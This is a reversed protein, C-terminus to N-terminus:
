LTDVGFLNYAMDCWPIGLPSYKNRANGARIADTPVPLIDWVM